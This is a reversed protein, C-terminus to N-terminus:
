TKRNVGPDGPEVVQATPEPPPGFPQPLIQGAIFTQAAM